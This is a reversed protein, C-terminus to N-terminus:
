SVPVEDSRLTALFDKIGSGLAKCEVVVSQNTSTDTFTVDTVIGHHRHTVTLVDLAITDLLVLDKNGALPQVAHKGLIYLDSDTLALVYAPTDSAQNLRHEAVVFGVGGGLGAGSSVSSLSDLAGAAAGVGEGALSGGAEARTTGPPFALAVAQIAADPLAAEVGRLVDHERIVM